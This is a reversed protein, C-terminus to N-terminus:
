HESVRQRLSPCGERPRLQLLDQQGEEVGEGVGVRAGDEVAIELGAVDENCRVLAAWTADSQDVEADAVGEIGV